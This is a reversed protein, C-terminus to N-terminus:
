TEQRPHYDAAPLGFTWAVAEACTLMAPPVCLFYDKRSGDPEPTSNVVKLFRVPSDKSFGRIRFLVMGTRRCRDIIRTRGSGPVRVPGLIRIGTMRVELNPHALVQEITLSGPATLEAHFAAPIRVGEHYHHLTGHWDADIGHKRGHRYFDVRAPSLYAPGDECHLRGRDDRRTVIVSAKGLHESRIYELRSEWRADTDDM